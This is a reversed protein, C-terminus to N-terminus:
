DLDSQNITSQNAVEFFRDVDLGGREALSTLRQMITAQLEFLVDLNEQRGQDEPIQAVRVKRCMDECLLELWEEDNQVENAETRIESFDYEEALMEPCQQLIELVLGNFGQLYVLTSSVSGNEIGKEQHEQKAILFKIARELVSRLKQADRASRILEAVTRDQWNSITYDQLFAVNFLSYVVSTYFDKQWSEQQGPM